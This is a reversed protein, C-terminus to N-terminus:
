SGYEKKIKMVDEDTLMVGCKECKRKEDQM